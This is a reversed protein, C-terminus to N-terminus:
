RSLEWGAVVDAMSAVRGNEMRSMAAVIATMQEQSNIDLVVDTGIGSWESVRAIYGETVNESPPAWRSIMLRITKLNYKRYYNSLIKFMARYGYPMSEFQKFQSDQSPIIEGDFHDSNIRINGPNNNKLGRPESM